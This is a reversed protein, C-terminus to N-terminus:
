ELVQTYSLWSFSPYTMGGSQLTLANAAPFLRHAQFFKARYKLLLAGYVASRLVRTVFFFNCFFAYAFVM